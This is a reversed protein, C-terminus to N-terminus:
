LIEERAAAWITPVTPRFGLERVLTGDMRGSWPNILPDASGAMPQGALVTMEYTTIPADDTVNVVRDDMVGTLALGM